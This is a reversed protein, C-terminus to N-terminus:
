DESSSDRTSGGLAILRLADARTQPDTLSGRAALTISDSDAQRPGRDAVCGQRAEIVALAGQADLGAMLADVLDEGLREQLILKSSCTDVLDYLRGFGIISDGPLYALHVWGDFPLLHHECMARFRINRLLVLNGDAPQAGIEQEAPHQPRFQADEAANHALEPSKGATDRRTEDTAHVIKSSASADGGVSIRGERLMPVPDVGEGGLLEEAALAVRAPTRVLRPDDADVGVASLFERIAVEAKTRDIAM